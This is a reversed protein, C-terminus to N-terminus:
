PSLPSTTWRWAMFNLQLYAIPWTQVANSCGSRTVLWRCVLVYDTGTIFISNPFPFHVWSVFIDTDAFVMLLKMCVCLVWFYLASYFPLLWGIFIYASDKYQDHWSSKADLGMRLEAENIKQIAKVNSISVFYLCLCVQNYCLICSCMPLEVLLLLSVEIFTIPFLHYFLRCEEGCTRRPVTSIVCPTYLM